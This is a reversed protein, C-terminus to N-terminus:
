FHLLRIYEKVTYGTHKKFSRQFYKIDTYGVQESIKKQSTEGSRMMEIALEMRKKIIYDMVSDGTCRRFEKAFYSRSMYISQAITEVTLEESIHKQIYEQAKEICREPTLLATEEGTLNKKRRGSSDLKTKIRAFVRVIEEPDIPKLIYDFVGFSLAGKVYDFEKYGSIMVVVIHPRNEAVWKAVEIGSVEYMEVDTFIVDVEHNEVYAIADKGDELSAEIEFGIAKWDIMRALGSRITIEDDAIVLRYM